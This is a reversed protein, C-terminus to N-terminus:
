ILTLAQEALYTITNNIEVNVDPLHLPIAIIHNNM